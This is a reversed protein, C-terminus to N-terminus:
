TCLLNNLIEMFKDFSMNIQCPDDIPPTENLQGIFDDIKKGGTPTVIIPTFLRDDNNQACLVKMIDEDGFGYGIFILDFTGKSLHEGILYSEFFDHVPEKLSMNTELLIGLYNPTLTVDGHLKAIINSKDKELIKNKNAQKFERDNILFIKPERMSRECLNDINTTTIIIRHKSSLSELHSFGQSLTAKKMKSKFDKLVNTDKINRIKVKLESMVLEFTIKELQYKGGLENNFNQLLLDPRDEDSNLYEQLALKIMHSTTPLGSSSSVGAGFHFSIIGNDKIHQAIKELTPKSEKYSRLKRAGDMTLIAFNNFISEAWLYNNTFFRKDIDGSESYMIIIHKKSEIIEDYISKFINCIHGIYDSDLRNNAARISNLLALFSDNELPQVRKGIQIQLSNKNNGIDEMKIQLEEKGRKIPNKNLFDLIKSNLEGEIIPIPPDIITKKLLCIDIKRPDLYEYGRYHVFTASSCSYIGNIIPRIEEDM